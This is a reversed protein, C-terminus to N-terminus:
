GEKRQRMEQNQPHWLLQLHSVWRSRVACNGDEPRYERGYQKTFVEAVRLREQNSNKQTAVLVARTPLVARASVM